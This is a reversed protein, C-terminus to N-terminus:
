RSACVNREAGAHHAYRPHKTAARASAPDVRANAHSTRRTRGAARWRHQTLVPRGTPWLRRAIAERSVHGVDTRGFCRGSGQTGRESRRGGSGYVTQLCVADTASSLKQLTLRGLACRRIGTRIGIWARLCPGRLARAKKSIELGAGGRPRFTVTEATVSRVASRDKQATVRNGVCRGMWGTGIGKTMSDLDGHAPDGGADDSGISVVRVM